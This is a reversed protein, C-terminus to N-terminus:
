IIGDKALLKRLKQLAFGRHSFSNKENMTLQALTKNRNELWFVPDYGFGNKGKSATLIIGKVKGEVWQERDKSVLSIVTKFQACRNKIPVGDLEQLLKNINEKDTANEGAYRSSFVGPAGNLYDVELGTDDAFTPLSTSKFVFRAKILSNELFTQGTESIESIEPFEALGVIQYPYGRFFTKVEELKHQNHTAFVIKKM